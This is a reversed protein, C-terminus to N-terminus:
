LFSPVLYNPLRVNASLDPGDNYVGSCQGPAQFLLPRAADEQGLLRYCHSCAISSLGIGKIYYHRTHSAAMYATGFHM